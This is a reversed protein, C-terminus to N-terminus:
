WFQKGSANLESFTRVMDADVLQVLAMSVADAKDPSRGVRAAWEGKLEVEIRGGSAAPRWRLSMLEDFLQEDNPLGLRGRQLHERVTWFAETRRNRYLIGGAGESTATESGRFHILKYGARQLIAGVGAGVGVTDVVVFGWGPAAANTKPRVGYRYALNAIRQATVTLDPEAWTALERITGEILVAVANRAAGREAIDCGLIPEARFSPPAAAAARAAAQDLWSRAPILGEADGEPFQAYVRSRVYDSNPGFDRVTAEITEPDVLGPIPLGVGSVNPVDSASITVRHWHPLRAVEAFRGTRFLPNGAAVTRRKEAGPRRLADWADPGVGQAEDLIVALGTPSHYGGYRSVSDSALAIIGSEEARNLRWRLEHFEGPLGSAQWVAFARAMFQEKLQREGPMTVVVLWGMAGLAVAVRALLHTKGSGNCGIVVSYAHEQVAAVVEDMKPYSVAPFETALLRALDFGLSTETRYQARLAALNRGEDRRGLLAGYQEELREVRLDTTM